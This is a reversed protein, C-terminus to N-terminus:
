TTAAGLKTSCGQRELEAARQSYDWARGEWLPRETNRDRLKQRVVGLGVGLAILVVAVLTAAGSLTSGVTEGDSMMAIGQRAAFGFAAGGAAGGVFLGLLSRRAHKLAVVRSLRALAQAEAFTMVASPRPLDLAVVVRPERRALRSKARPDVPERRLTSTTARRERSGEDQSWHWVAENADEYAIVM